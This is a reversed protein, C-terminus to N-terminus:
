KRRDFMFRSSRRSPNAHIADGFRLVEAMREDTLPGERIGTVDQEVEEMKRAGCLVTNVAPHNLVFRYCEPATMGAEFGLDHRPQLLEGWRTATYAIVGPQTDPLREFVEDEAGRHAANYRIMLVDPHPELQNALRAALPRNHISYGLARVRGSEKLVRMADWVRPRLYWAGQVWGMLFADIRDTGFARACRRWFALVRGATPLGAVTIITLEDRHGARILRRVGEAMASMKPTVFFSRVGLEYFSREIDEPALTGGLPGRRGAFSWSALTLPSVAVDTGGLTVQESHLFPM